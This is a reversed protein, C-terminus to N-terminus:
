LANMDVWLQLLLLLTWAPQRAKLARELTAWTQFMVTQDLCYGFGKISYLYM